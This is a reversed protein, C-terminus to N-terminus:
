DWLWPDFLDKRKGKGSGLEDYKEHKICDREWRRQTKNCVRKLWPPCGDQSSGHRQKDRKFQKHERWSRRSVEKESLEKPAIGHQIFTSEGSNSIDWPRVWRTNSRPWPAGYRRKKVQSSGLYIGFRLKLYEEQESLSPVVNGSPLIIQDKM